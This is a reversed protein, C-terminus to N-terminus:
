VRRRAATHAAAVVATALLATEAAVLALRRALDADASADDTLLGALRRVPPAGPVLVEALCAALGGVVVWAPRTVLPRSEGDPTRLVLRTRTGGAVDGPPGRLRAMHALHHRATLRLDAPLREPVYAVSAPRRVTRRSPVSAGAAVRLLTSKGSGNGGGVVHVTGADVTLDVGRLVWPRSRSYRKWVGHVM